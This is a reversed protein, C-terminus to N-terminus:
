AAARRESSHFAVGVAAAALLLLLGILVRGDIGLATAPLALAAEQDRLKSKIMQTTARDGFVSEYRWGAPLNLPVDATVLQAEAPRAPMPDVAILATHESLLHYHLAIEVIKGRVSAPDAGRRLQDSVAEIKARAWLAAIGITPQAKGLDIKTQWPQGALSGDIEAAGFLPSGSPLRALFAVPEGRYLDPLPSPFIEAGRAALPLALALDTLVPQELKQFLEGLKTAVEDTSAIYTFSGRGLEAAKRMFYDNPASGIGITFLRRAGLGSAIRDFVAAENGVAADTLFVIQFLRGQSVPLALGRELAPLIETGGEASIGALRRKATARAQPDAIMFGGFMSSAEDSFRIIEFRDEPRLRDLAATLAAKAQLISQGDMSGSTDLIFVLDRPPPPAQPVAPPVVLGLLYPAGAHTEVYLAAEPEAAPGPAWELLFDRDAFLEGAPTIRIEGSPEEVTALQHSSSAIQHVPLGPDLLVTLKVPKVPGDEPRLVPPTIREADAVMARAPAAPATSVALAPAAGGGVYRPAVVMPFRLSFRGDRYLVRDQYEIEVAIEDGPGVNAISTTFINPREQEILSARQGAAKAAEYEAKAEARERIEGEIVRAGIHLRLRDVAAGEPLPFVYIGELWAATDNRFRQLVRVRQVLGNARIEVESWLASPVILREDQPSKFLLGARGPDTAAEATSSAFAFALILLGAIVRVAPIPLTRQKRGTRVTTRALRNMKSVGHNSITSCIGNATRRTALYLAGLAWALLISGALVPSIASGSQSGTAGSRAAIATLIAGDDIPSGAPLALQPVAPAFAYGQGISRVRLLLAEDARSEVNREAATFRRLAAISASPDAPKWVLVFDRGSAPESDSILVHRREGPGRRIDIGHSPSRLEAIPLGPNLELELVRRPGSWEADSLQPEAIAGQTLPLTLVFRGDGLTVPRDYILRIFVETHAGIGSIPLALLEPKKEGREASLAVEVRRDGVALSLRLPKADPPLPLIYVGSRPAGPGARFRHEVVVRAALPDVYATIRAADAARVTLSGDTEQLVLAPGSAPGVPQAQPLQPPFTAGQVAASALVLTLFLIALAALIMFQAADLRLRGGLRRGTEQGNSM